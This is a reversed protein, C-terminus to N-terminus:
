LVVSSLLHKFSAQTRVTVDVLQPPLNNWLKVVNPLFSHLHASTKTRPRHLAMSHHLRPSPRPHPAFTSAPIISGGLLIRRCLLLKQIKRRVVLPCWNMLQVPDQHGPSWLGTALKAAFKQVAELKAIYSVQHPDWVCACYDLLPLVTSTYLRSLARRGAPRYLLGLQKRSKACTNDIHASWSLDSTVTVGLYKISVVQTIPSGAATVQLQTPHPRRRPPFGTKVGRETLSTVWWLQNYM